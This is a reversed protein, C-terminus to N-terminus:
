LCSKTVAKGSMTIGRKICHFLLQRCTVDTELLLVTGFGYRM